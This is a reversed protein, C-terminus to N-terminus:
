RISFHKNCHPCQIKGYHPTRIVLLLNQPRNDNRIGNKHHVYETPKLYRNLLKEMILRHKYVYGRNNASPHNPKRTLVYGKSHTAFGKWNWHSKGSLKPYKKGKNPPSKGLLSKCYCKWSCYKRHNSKSDWFEKKCTKCIYKTM